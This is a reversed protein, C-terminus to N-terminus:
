KKRGVMSMSDGENLLTALLNFPLFLLNRFFRKKLTILSEWLEKIPNAFEFVGSRSEFHIVELGAKEFVKQLSEKTFHFTHEDPVLFPWRAKTLQSSLGGFNPVDVLVIGDTELINKVKSLVQIPDVVHELVHNLIVVDFFNRPLKAGEFTKNYIKLGRSKAIAASGSPEIGFRQWKTKDFLTLMTGTSTGIDLVKGSSKLKHIITVRKQFINRFLNEFKQYDTDRHYKNYSVQPAEKIRVLGCKKCKYLHFKDAAFVFEFDKNECLVCKM